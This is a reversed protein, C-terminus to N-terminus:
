VAVIVVPAAFRPPVENSLPYTHVKVVIVGGGVTVATTGTFVAVPTGMLWTSVAVKLSAISQEVSADGAVVNVRVPGPVVVTAPVTVHEPETAVNVGVALRNFL